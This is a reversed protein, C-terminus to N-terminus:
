PRDHAAAEALYVCGPLVRGIAPYDGTSCDWRVGVATVDPQFRLQGAAVGFAPGFSLEFAGGPQLTVQELLRGRYDNAAIGCQDIRWAGWNMYCEALAMRLGSTLAVESAFLAREQAQLHLQEARDEVQELAQSADRTIAATRAATGEVVAQATPALRAAQWADFLVLAAVAGVLVASM